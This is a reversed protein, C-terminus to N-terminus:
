PDFVRKGCPACLAASFFRVACRVGIERNSIVSFRLRENM